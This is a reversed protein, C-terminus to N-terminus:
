GIAFPMEKFEPLTLRPHPIKKMSHWDRPLRFGGFFIRWGSRRSSAPSHVELLESRDKQKGKKEKKETKEKARRGQGIPQEHSHPVRPLIVLPALNKWFHDFLDVLGSILDFVLLKPRLEKEM